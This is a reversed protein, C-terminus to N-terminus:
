KKKSRNKQLTQQKMEWVAAAAIALPATDYDSPKMSAMLDTLEDRIRNLMRFHETNNM